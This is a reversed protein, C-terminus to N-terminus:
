AKGRGLFSFYAIILLWGAAGVWYKIALSINTKSSWFAEVFAAVLLLIIAGYVLKIADKGANVLAQKRSFNGPAIIAWGVKLGAAGALVIGTLEYSAHGAVFSFFPQEFGVNIIHATVGGFFLGNFILYFQSGLTALMGGAFTQFAIGINNRIYHGFMMFDTDAQRERGLKDHAPDYMSEIKAVSAQDVISYILEPFLLTLGFVVFCPLYFLASAIWVFQAQQRVAVPLGYLIFRYIKAAFGIRRQYLLQHGSFALAELETILQTSYHRQRALALCYCIQRYDSAFHSLTELLEPTKKKFQKLQSTTAKFKKWSTQYRQEFEEQRM